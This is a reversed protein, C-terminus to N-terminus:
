ADLCEDLTLGTYRSILKPPLGDEKMRRATQMLSKHVASESKTQEKSEWEQWDVNALYYDIQERLPQLDENIVKWVEKVDIQYYDHILVHCMRSIADWPTEKHQLRFAKTLRYAAEGIIEINKVIGYYRLKDAQLGEVSKGIAFDLINDIANLIHELRSRDRVQERM